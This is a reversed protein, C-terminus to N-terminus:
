RPARVHVLDRGVKGEPEGYSLTRAEQAALAPVSWTAGALITSPLIIALFLWRAAPIGRVRRSIKM